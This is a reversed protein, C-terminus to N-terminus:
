ADIRQRGLLLPPAKTEGALGLLFSLRFGMKRAILATLPGQLNRADSLAAWAHAENAICRVFGMPWAAGPGVIQAVIDHKPDGSLALVGGGPLAEGALMMVNLVLRAMPAPLVADGVLGDLDLNVKRAGVLGLVWTQLTGVELEEL